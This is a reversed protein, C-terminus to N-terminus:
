VPIIGLLRGALLYVLMTALLCGVLDLLLGGRIMDKLPVFGTSFVMANPPTSVPLMFALSSAVGAGVALAAPSVGTERGITIVVPVMMTAVATNSAIETMIVVLVIVALLLLLPAPTGFADIFSSAIWLALGSRFMAGSLALGGGFLILVGWEITRTDEWDLIFRGARLDVPVIFMLVGALIGVAYEDLANLPGLPFGPLAVRLLPLLIWLAAALALVGLTLAEGRSLPGLDRFAARMQSAGGEVRKVEPPFLKAILVWALPVYLLVFPVGFQMWGVFTLPHYGEVGGMASNLIGVTIGNPPSGIITGVGGISAAWAIGLFLGKGYASKGPEAHLLALIGMALPIMLATTAANSIWMSIFATLGMMALMIMRPDEAVRGRSLLWLTLRRDLSWRRIAAAMLFGGLFLFIVPHAYSSGVSALSSRVIATGHVGTVGLLPLAVLPVLATAPLPVAETVWWIVMLAMVALTKQMSRALMVPDPNGPAGVLHRAATEEFSAPTAAGLILIFCLLGLLFGVLRTTM